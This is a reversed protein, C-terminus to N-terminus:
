VEEPSLWRFSVVQLRRGFRKNVEKTLEVPKADANDVLDLYDPVRQVVAECWARALVNGAKDVAEGYSRVTFTNSRVSVANGLANLLHGQTVYGPAGQASHGTAANINRYNYDGM